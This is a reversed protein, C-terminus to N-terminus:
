KDTMSRILSYNSVLLEARMNLYYSPTGDEDSEVQNNHIKQSQM